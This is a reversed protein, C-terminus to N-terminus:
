NKSEKRFEDLEKIEELTFGFYKEILEYSIINDELMRLVVDEKAELAGEDRIEDVVSGMIKRGEDSEKFYRTREALVQYYMDVPNCCVFDHMLKGLATNDQVKNNVYVVSLGDEFLGGDERIVRDVHYIPLGKKLVDNETIFIVYNQPLKEFDEGADLTNADMVSGNYRARKPNAGNDERQIEVNYSCGVSDIALIDLQVSRGQLNKIYKQTFVETIKLEPRELIVQLILETCSLDEFVKMMFDNDMLCFRQIKQQVSLKNSRTGRKLLM